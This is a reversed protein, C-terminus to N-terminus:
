YQGSTITSEKKNLGKWPQQQQQKKKKTLVGGKKLQM